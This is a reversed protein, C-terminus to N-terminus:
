KPSLHMNGIAMHAHEMYPVVEEKDIFLIMLLDKGEKWYLRSAVM